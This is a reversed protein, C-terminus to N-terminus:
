VLYALSQLESTHEESRETARANEKPPRLQQAGLRVYVRDGAVTLTYRVDALAPLSVSVDDERLKNERVLDYWVSRNGSRLDFALDSSRRTPFPHPTRHE